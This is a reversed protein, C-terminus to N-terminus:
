YFECDEDEYDLDNNFMMTQEEEWDQQYDDYYEDIQDSIADLCVQCVNCRVNLHDTIPDTKCDPCLGYTEVENEFNSESSM